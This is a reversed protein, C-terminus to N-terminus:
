IDKLANRPNMMRLLMGVMFGAATLAALGLKTVDVVPEVRVGEPTSIIVAVPRSLVRGGGGGGSGAGESIEDSKDEESETEKAYGMGRGSGVGFGMVTLVEAAPIILADGDKIPAGYVAEVSASLLFEGLTDQIIELADEEKLLELEEDQTQLANEDSM